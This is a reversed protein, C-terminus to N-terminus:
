KAKYHATGGDISDSVNKTKFSIRLLLGTSLGM